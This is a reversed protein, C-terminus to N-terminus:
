DPEKQKNLDIPPVGMSETINKIADYVKARAIPYCERELVGDLNETMEEFTFITQSLLSVKFDPADDSTINTNIELLATQNSIDNPRRCFLKDEVKLTIGDKGIQHAVNNFIDIMCEIKLIRFKTIKYNQPM